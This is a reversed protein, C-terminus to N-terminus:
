DRYTRKKIIVTKSGRDRDRAWGYHRGREWGYHRGRDTKIVVRARDRHHFRPGDRDRDGTRITVSGEQAKSTTALPLSLAIAVAALALTKLMNYEWTQSTSAILAGYLSLTGAL